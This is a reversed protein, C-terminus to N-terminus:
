HFPQSNQPLLTLGAQSGESLLATTACVTEGHGQVAARVLSQEEQPVAVTASAGGKGM